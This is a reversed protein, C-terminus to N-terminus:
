FPQLAELKARKRFLGLGKIRLGSGKVRIQFIKGKNLGLGWFRFVIYGMITTEMRM